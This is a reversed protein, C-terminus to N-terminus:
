QNQQLLRGHYTTPYSHLLEIRLIEAERFLKLEHAIEAARYLSAAVLHPYKDRYLAAIKLLALQADTSGISTSSSKFYRGQLYLAMARQPETLQKFQQALRSQGNDLDGNELQMQIELLMAWKELEGQQEVQEWSSRALELQGARIALSAIYLGAGGERSAPDTLDLQRLVEAAQTPDFSIPLLKPSFRNRQTQESWRYNAVEEQDASGLQEFSHLSRLFPSLAQEMGGAAIHGRALAVAVQFRELQSLTSHDDVSLRTALEFAGVWDQHQLRVELRYRPLGVEQLLRDFEAQRPPGVRGQLVDKWSLTRQNSLIIHQRDFDIVQADPILTLDRLVIPQQANGIAALQWIGLLILVYPLRKFM